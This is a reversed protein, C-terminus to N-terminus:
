GEVPAPEHQVVPEQPQPPLEAEAAEAHQEPEAHSVLEAPAPEVVKEEPAALTGAEAALPAPAESPAEIPVSLEPVVDVMQDIPAPVDQLAPSPSAKEVIAEHVTGALPAAPLLTALPHLQAFAPVLGADQFGTGTDRQDSAPEKHVAEVDGGELRDRYANASAGANLALLLVASGAIVIALPVAQAGIISLLDDLAGAGYAHAISARVSPGLVLFSLSGVIAAVPLVITASVALLRWFNRGSLQAARSLGAREDAAALPGLFFGFRLGIVAVAILMTALGADAVARRLPIGRWMEGATPSFGKPGPLATAVLHVLGGQVALTFGVAFIMLAALVFGLFRLFGLFLRFERRGIVFHALSAEREEGLATRTLPVAIASLLLSSGALFLLTQVLARPMAGGTLAHAEGGLAGIWWACLGAFFTAPLWSTGLIGILHGVAFGYGRAVSRAVGVKGM